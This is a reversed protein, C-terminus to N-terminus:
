ASRPDAPRRAAAALASWLQLGLAVGVAAALSGVIRFTWPRLQSEPALETATITSVTWTPPVSLTARASALAVGCAAQDAVTASPDNAVATARAQLEGILAQQWEQLRMREVDVWRTAVDHLERLIKPSDSGPTEASINFQSRVVESKSGSGLRSYDMEVRDRSVAKPDKLRLSGALEGVLADLNQNQNQNAIAAVASPSPTLSVSFGWRSTASGAPFAIVSLGLFLIFLGVVQWRRAFLPVLMDILSPDTENPSQREAILV